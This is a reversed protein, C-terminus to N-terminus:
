LVFLISIGMFQLYKKSLENKNEFIGTDILIYLEKKTTRDVRKLYPM